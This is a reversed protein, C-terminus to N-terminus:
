SCQGLRRKVSVRVIRFEQELQGGSLGESSVGYFVSNGVTERSNRTSQQAEWTIAVWGTWQCAPQQMAVATTENNTELYKGLLTDMHTM